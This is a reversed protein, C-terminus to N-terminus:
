IHWIVIKKDNESICLIFLKSKTIINSGVQCCTLLNRDDNIFEGEYTM